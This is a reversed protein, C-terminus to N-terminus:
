IEWNIRRVRCQDAYMVPTFKKDLRL